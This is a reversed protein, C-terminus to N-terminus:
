HSGATWDHLTHPKLTEQISVVFVRTKSPHSTSLDSDGNDDSDGHVDSDGNDASDGHDDNDGHIDSDGHVDSDAHHESDGHNNKCYWGIDM